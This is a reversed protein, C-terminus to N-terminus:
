DVNMLLRHLESLEKRNLLIVANSRALKYAADTYSSNTVVAAYDALYHQRGACAEQVAKVGVPYKSHKCQIAIRLGNIETIIDVGNDGTAPTAEASYGNRRLVDVCESEFAIGVNQQENFGEMGFESHIQHNLTDPVHTLQVGQEGPKFTVLLRQALADISKQEEYLSQLAAFDELGGYFTVCSTAKIFENGDVLIGSVKAIKYPTILPDQIRGRILASQWTGGTACMVGDWTAFTIRSTEDFTIALGGKIDNASLRLRLTPIAGLPGLRQDHGLTINGGESWASGASTYIPDPRKPEFEEFM